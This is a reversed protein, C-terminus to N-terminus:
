RKKFISTIWTGTLFWLFGMFRIIALVATSYLLIKFFLPTRTKAANQAEILM